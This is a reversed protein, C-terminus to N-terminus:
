MTTCRVVPSIEENENEVTSNEQPDNNKMQKFKKKIDKYKLVFLYKSEECEQLEKQLESNKNQLEQCLLKTDDEKKKSLELKELVKQYEEYSVYKFGAKKVCEDESDSSSSVVSHKLPKKVAVAKKEDGSEPNIKVINKLSTVRMEQEESDSDSSVVVQKVIKKPPVVKKESESLISPQKSDVFDQVSDLAKKSFIWGAGCKLSANYRGGLTKLQEKYLKTDEGIVAFSRETYDIIEIKNSSM